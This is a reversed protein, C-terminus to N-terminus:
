RRRRRGFGAGDDRRHLPFETDNRGVRRAHIADRSGDAPRIRRQRAVSSPEGAPAPPKEEITRDKWDVEAYPNEVGEMSSAVVGPIGRFTEVLGGGIDKLTQWASAPHSAEAPQAPTPLSAPETSFRSPRNRYAQLGQALQTAYPIIPM